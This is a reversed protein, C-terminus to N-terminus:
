FETKLSVSFTRPDGPFAQNHRISEVYEEDLLNQVGLQLSAHQWGLRRPLEYGVFADFVHYATIRYDDGIYEGRFTQAYSDHYRYGLGTSFGKLTGDHWAYSQWIAMSNAPDVDYKIDSDLDEVDQYTYSVWSTWNSTIPGSLSLEFGKSEKEGDCEYANTLDPIAVPRNKQKIKFVDASMWLDAFVEAKAGTEWQDAKWSETIENGNEDLYGFNPAESHSYNGYLALGPFLMYTLGARPNWSDAENDKDSEHRDAHVGALLYWKEWNLQDQFLAGVRNVSSDSTTMKVAPAKLVPNTLDMEKTTSSGSSTDTETHTADGGVVIEHSIPGTEVKTLLNLYGGLNDATSDQESYSLTGRGTSRIYDFYQKATKGTASASPAWNVRDLDTHAYGAGGRIATADCLSLKAALSATMGQYKDRSDNDGYYTDYPAVFDGAVYPVGQYSPNDLWQLTADAQVTLNKSPMLVLSPAAFVNQGWDIDAPLYFPQSASASANVRAAGNIGSIPRNLDAAAQWFQGEGFKSTLKVDTIDYSKPTKTVINVGGGVGGASSASNQGGYISSMPGKFFSIYEVACADFYIPMIKPIAFGNIMTDNGSFGRIALQGGSATAPSRGGTSVGSIYQLSDYFSNIELVDLLAQPLVEVTQPLQILPTDTLTADSIMEPRFAADKEARVEMSPLEVKQEDAWVTLVAGVMVLGIGAQLVSLSM